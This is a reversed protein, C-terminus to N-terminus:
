LLPLQSTPLDNTLLNIKKQCIRWSGDVKRLKHESKGPYQVLRKDKSVYLLLNSTVEATGNGDGSVQINTLFHRTRPPPRQMPNLEHQTRAVRARLGQLGEYVIVGVEGLDGDHQFNPVWYLVDDTLLKLWDDYRRDDLLDAEKFIFLELDHALAQDM